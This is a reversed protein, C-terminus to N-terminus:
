NMASGITTGLMDYVGGLKTAYLRYSGVSALFVLAAIMAYEIATAGRRDPGFRSVLDGLRPLRARGAPCGEQEATKAM